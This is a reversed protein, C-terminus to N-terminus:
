SPDSFHVATRAHMCFLGPGPRLEPHEFTCSHARARPSGLGLLGHPRRACASNRSLRRFWSCSRMSSTSSRRFKSSSWRHPAGGAGGAPHGLRAARAHRPEQRPEGAPPHQASRHRGDGTAARKAESSASCPTVARHAAPRRPQQVNLDRAAAGTLASPPRAAALRFSSTASSMTIVIRVIPNANTAMNAPM